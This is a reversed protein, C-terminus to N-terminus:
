IAPSPTQPTESPVGKPPEPGQQSLAGVLATLIGVLNGLWIMGGATEPQLAPDEHLLGAWLLLRVDDLPIKALFGIAVAPPPEGQSESTLAAVEQQIAMLAALVDLFSHGARQQFAILANCDYRLLRPQDLTIPISPVLEM